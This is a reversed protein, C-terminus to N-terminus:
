GHTNHRQGRSAQTSNASGVNARIGTDTSGGDPLLVTEEIHM